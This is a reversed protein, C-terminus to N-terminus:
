SEQHEKMKLYKICKFTKLDNVYVTCMYVTKLDTMYETQLNRQMRKNFNLCMMKEGNIEKM